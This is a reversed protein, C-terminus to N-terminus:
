GKGLALGDAKIVIPFAVKLLRVGSGTDRLHGGAGDPNAESAHTGQCFDEVVRPAGGSERTWFACAKAKLFISSARQSPDDPGVVTLGISNEKAFGALGALDGAKIAVNEAIEETGGNGPACFIRDVGSSQKLKWALAHERGGSGVVLIKM